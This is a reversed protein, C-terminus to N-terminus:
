KLTPNAGASLLLSVMESSGAEATVHLLTRQGAGFPKNLIDTTITSFDGETKQTNELDGSRAGESNQVVSCQVKESCEMKQQEEADDAPSCNINQQEVLDILETSGSQHTLEELLQQLSHLDCSKCATYLQNRLQRSTDDVIFDAHLCKSVAIIENIGVM